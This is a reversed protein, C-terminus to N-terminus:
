KSLKENIKNEIELATKLVKLDVSYDYETGIKALFDLIELRLPNDKAVALKKIEISEKQKLTDIDSISDYEMNKYIEIQQNSYDLAISNEKQLIQLTRKKEHSIRSVFFNAICGKQFTIQVNALDENKSYLNLGEASITEIEDKLLRICIDIDHILLDMVVGTDTIRGNYPGVRKSQWFLPQKVWKSLEQVAANYREVHGIQMYLNNKKALLFLKKAQQYNNTIPKEILLHNGSELIQKAISYHTATPTALIVAETQSLLKEISSFSNFKQNKCVQQARKQNADYIGVFNVKEVISNLIALHFSGMHGIGILGIKKM